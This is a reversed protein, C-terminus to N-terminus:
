VITIGDSLLQNTQQAMGIVMHEALLKLDKTLWHNTCNARLTGTGGIGSESLHNLLALSTFLNDFTM